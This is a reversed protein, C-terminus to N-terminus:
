PKPFAVPREFLKQTSTGYSIRECTNVSAICFCAFAFPPFDSNRKTKQVAAALAGKTKEEKGEAEEEDEESEAEEDDEEEEEEEGEGEEELETAEGEEAEAESKEEDGEEEEEEEEPLGEGDGEEEEEEDQDECEEGDSQGEEVLDGAGEDASGFLDEEEEEAESGDGEADEGDESESTSSSDDDGEEEEGKEKKKLEKAVRRQEEKLEATQGPDALQRGSSLGDLLDLIDDGDEEAEKLAEDLSGNLKMKEFHREAKEQSSAYRTSSADTAVSLSSGAPSKMRVRKPPPTRPAPFSGRKSSEAKDDFTKKEKPEEGDTTKTKKDKGKTEQSVKGEGAEEQSKKEKNKKESKKESDKQKKEKKESDKQKKEEKESAKQKKEEKESDKQRKEKESGKQKKQEKESDKQKKEEKESDKQKKEKESDKQKKEKESVEKEKKAKKVCQEDATEKKAKEKQKEKKQIQKEDKESEKKKKEKGEGDCVEKKKKKKQSEEEKKSKEKKSRKEKKEIKKHARKEKQEGKEKQDSKGKPGDDSEKGGPLRVGKAAKAAERARKFVESHIQEAEGKKLTGKSKRDLWSKGPDITVRHGSSRAGPKKLASKRVQPLDAARKGKATKAQAAKAMGLRVTHCCCSRFSPCKSCLFPDWLVTVASEMEFALQDVPRLLDSCTAHIDRWIASAFIGIFNMIKYFHQNEHLIRIASRSDKSTAEWMVWDATRAKNLPRGKGYWDEWQDGAM